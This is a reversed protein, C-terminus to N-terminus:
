LNLLWNKLRSFFGWFCGVDNKQRDGSNRLSCFALINTTRSSKKWTECGFSHSINKLIKQSACTKSHPTKFVIQYFNQGQTSAYYTHIHLPCIHLAQINHSFAWRKLRGGRRRFVGIVLLTTADSEKCVQSGHTISKQKADIFALNPCTGCRGKKEIKWLFNWWTGM